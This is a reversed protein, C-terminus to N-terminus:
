SRSYRGWMGSNMWVDNLQKEIVNTEEDDGDDDTLKDSNSMLSSSKGMFMKVPKPRQYGKGKWAKLKTMDRKLKTM